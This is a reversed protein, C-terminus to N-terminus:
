PSKTPVLSPNDIEFVRAQALMALHDPIGGLEQLVVEFPQPQGPELHGDLEPRFLLYGIVHNEADYAAIIIEVSSVPTLTPNTIQGELTLDRRWQNHNSATIEVTIATTYTPDLQAPEATAQESCITVLDPMGEIEIIFAFPIVSGQEIRAPPITQSVEAVIINPDACFATHIQANTIAVPSANYLEGTYHTMGKRDQWMTTNVVVLEAPNIAAVQDGWVAQPDVTFGDAITELAASLYLTDPESLFVRLASFYPETHRITLTERGIAGTHDNYLFTVQIRGDDLDRRDVETYAPNDGYRLRIYSEALARVEEPTLTGENRVEVTVRSGFGIPPILRVLLLRGTSDDIIQWDDPLAIGFVGSPHRYDIFSRLAETPRATPTLPSPSPPATPPETALGPEVPAATTPQPSSCGGLALAAALPLWVVIPAIRTRKRPIM